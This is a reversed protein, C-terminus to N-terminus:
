VMFSTGVFVVAQLFCGSSLGVDPRHLTGFAYSIGVDDDFQDLGKRPVLYGSIDLCGRFGVGAQDPVIDTGRILPPKKSGVRFVPIQQTTTWRRVPNSDDLAARLGQYDYEKFNM